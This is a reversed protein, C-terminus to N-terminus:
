GDFLNPTHSMCPLTHCHVAVESPEFRTHLPPLQFSAPGLQWAAHLLPRGGVCRLWETPKRRARTGTRGLYPLGSRVGASATASALPGHSVKRWLVGHRLAYEASHLREKAEWLFSPVVTVNTVPSVFRPRLHNE